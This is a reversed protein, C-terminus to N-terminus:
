FRITLILFVIIIVVFPVICASVCGIWFNNRMLKRRQFRARKVQELEMREIETDSFYDEDSEKGEGGKAKVTESM